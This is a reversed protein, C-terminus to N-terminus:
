TTRWPLPMAARPAVRVGHGSRLAPSRLWTSATAQQATRKTEVTLRVVEHQHEAAGAAALVVATSESSPAVPHVFGLEAVLRREAREAVHAVPDELACRAAIEALERSERHRSIAQVPLAALDIVTVVGLCGIVFVAAGLNDGGSPVELCSVPNALMLEADPGLPRPAAPETVLTAGRAAQLRAARADACGLSTGAVALM